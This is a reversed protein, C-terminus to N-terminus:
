DVVSRQADLRHHRVEHLAFRTLLGVDFYEGELRTGGRRWDNPNVTELLDRFLEANVQLCTAVTRPDDDNYRRNVAAAEQDEYPFQPDDVSIALQVRDAFLLITDRVHCAYELPSWMGPAPRASLLPTGGLEALLDGWRRAEGVIAMGLQDEAVSAAQLGCEPCTGDRVILFWRSPVSEIM